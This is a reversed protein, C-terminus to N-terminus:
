ELSSADAADLHLTAGIRISHTAADSFALKPELICALDIEHAFADLLDQFKHLCLNNMRTASKTIWEKYDWAVSCLDCLILIGRRLLGIHSKRWCFLFAALM